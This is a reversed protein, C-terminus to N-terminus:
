PILLYRRTCRLDRVADQAVGGASTTSRVWISFLGSCRKTPLWAITKLYRHDKGDKKRHISRLVMGLASHWIEPELPLYKTKV